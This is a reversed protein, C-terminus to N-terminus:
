LQIYDGEFTNFFMITSMHHTQVAAINIIRGWNSATEFTITQAVKLFKTFITDGARQTSFRVLNFVTM